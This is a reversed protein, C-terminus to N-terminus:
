VTKEVQVVKTIDGQANRTITSETKREPLQMIEVRVAAPQVNIVPAVSARAEHVMMLVYDRIAEAQAQTQVHVTRCVRADGAGSWLQVPVLSASEVGVVPPSEVGVVPPLSAATRANSVELLDYLANKDVESEFYVTCVHKAKEGSGSTISAGFFKALQDSMKKIMDGHRKQDAEDCFYVIVKQDGQAITTASKMQPSLSSHRAAAAAYREKAKRLTALDAETLNLQDDQKKPAPM